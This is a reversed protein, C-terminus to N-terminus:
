AAGVQARWGAILLARLRLSRVLLVLEPNVVRLLDGQQWVCRLLTQRCASGGDGDYPPSNQADNRVVASVSRVEVQVSERINAM